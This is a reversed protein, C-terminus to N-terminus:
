KGNNAENMNAVERYRQIGRNLHLRMAARASESDRARIADFIQHHEREIHVPRDTGSSTFRLTRTANGIVQKLHAMLKLFYPNNTARAVEMHFDLAKEAGLQWDHASQDVQALAAELSALQQDTRNIAALAAAGAEIEIRLESVSILDSSTLLDNPVIQFHQTGADPSVFTGIGRRTAVYGALKLRAIAERVVNRSVRFSQALQQEPPFQEGPAFEGTQIKQRIQDAIEDPLNTPRNLADFM